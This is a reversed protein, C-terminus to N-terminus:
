TSHMGRRRRLQIFAATLLAGILLVTGFTSLAPVAASPTPYEIVFNLPYTANGAVIASGGGSGDTLRLVVEATHSGAALSVSTTGGLGIRFVGVGGTFTHIDNGSLNYPIGDVTIGIQSNAIVNPIETASVMFVAMGAASTFTISTGPVPVFTGSTTAFDGSTKSVAKAAWAFVPSSDVLGLLILVAIGLLGKGKTM